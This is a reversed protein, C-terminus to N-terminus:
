DTRDVATKVGNRAEAVRPALATPALRLVELPVADCLRQRTGYDHQAGDVAVARWGAFEPAAAPGRYGLLMAACEVDAAVPARGFSAARKMALAAVAAEADELHEHAGLAFDGSARHVLHLAYGVNPGPSGFLAGKPQVGDVLDGPRDARWDRAPPLTVGPALNPENRPRDDAVESVFPDTPM